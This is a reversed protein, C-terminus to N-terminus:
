VTFDSAVPGLSWIPTPHSQLRSRTHPAHRGVSREDAAGRHLLITRGAIPDIWVCTFYGVTRRAGRVAAGRGAWADLPRLSRRAAVGLEPGAVTWAETGGRAWAGALRRARRQTRRIVTPTLRAPRRRASARCSCAEWFSRPRSRRTRRPGRAEPPPVPAASRWRRSGLLHARPSCGQLCGSSSGGARARATLHPRDLFTM